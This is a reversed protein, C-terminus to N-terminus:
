SVPKGTGGLLAEAHKRAAETQGGLMRALETVRDKASLLTIESITRGAKIQKTVVYHASRARRGAAPAHHLAGAAEARDAADERRRRQRNRRRRQRGGRRVGAGPNRGRAALVTKLALMVRAM